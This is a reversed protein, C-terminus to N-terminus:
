SKRWSLLLSLYPSGPPSLPVRSLAPPPMPPPRSYPLYIPYSLRKPSTVLQNVLDM